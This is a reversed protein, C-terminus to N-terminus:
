KRISRVDGQLLEINKNVYGLETHVGDLAAALKADDQQKQRVMETLDDIRRALSGRATEERAVRENTLSDASRLETLDTKHQAWLGGLAFAAMVIWIVLRLTDKMDFSFFGEPLRLRSTLSRRPTHNNGM